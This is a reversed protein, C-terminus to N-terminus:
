YGYRSSLSVHDCNQPSAAKYHLRNIAWIDSYDEGYKEKGYGGQVKDTWLKQMQVGSARNKM